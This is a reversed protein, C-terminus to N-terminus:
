SAQQPKRKPPRVPPTIGAASQLEEFSKVVCAVFESLDPLLEYDANFGWNLVGNYSMLAIGLGTNEVLPVYGYMKELLGGRMYLPIQPGPINTVMLNYPSTSASLRKAALSLIRTGTWEVVQFLVEAGVAQQSKKLDATQRRIRDLREAPDPEDIPLDLIWMSVQNGLKGDNGESRTSVPAATRFAEISAPDVSRGAIFHRVAGAVTALVVDNVTGGIAKRIDKVDSLSMDLWDVRRHPGIQGNLPTEPAAKLMSRAMRGVARGRQRIGEGFERLDEYTKRTHAIADFPMRIRRTVSDRLLERQMPAPRPIYPSLDPMEANPDTSLMLQMLDVGSKGDIMCHHIKQIMSWRNGDLGEVIWMEWLPKTLDMRNALIRASLEKLEQETGPQPLRTHRLHYDLDFAPDDVWVPHQEVPIWQLRQRFRPVQHLLAEISRRLTAMDIGGGPTALPGADYIATGAGHTFANASEFVLFSTDQAALREYSYRPM